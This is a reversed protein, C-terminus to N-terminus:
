ENVLATFKDCTIGLITNKNVLRYGKNQVDYVCVHKGVDLVYNTYKLWKNVNIRGNLKRVTNDKKVFTVTFFRGNTAKLIDLLKM